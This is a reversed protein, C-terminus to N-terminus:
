KDDVPFPMFKTFFSFAGFTCIDFTSNICVETGGKVLLAHIIQLLM